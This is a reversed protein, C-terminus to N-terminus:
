KEALDALSRKDMDNRQIINVLSSCNSIDCEVTNTPLLVVLNAPVKYPVQKKSPRAANYYERSKYSLGHFQDAAFAVVLM